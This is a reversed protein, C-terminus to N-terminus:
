GPQGPSAADDQPVVAVRVALCAGPVQRPSATAQPQLQQHGPVRGQREPDAGGANMQRLVQDPPHGPASAPSSGPGIEAYRRRGMPFRGQRRRNAEADIGDQQRRNEGRCTM